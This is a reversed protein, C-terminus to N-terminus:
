DKKDQITNISLILNYLHYGLAAFAVLALMEYAPRCTERGKFGIFILLPAILLAHILNVWLYSSGSRIRLFAKYAHYFLLFFGLVLIATYLWSPTNARSLAIFLFLPVVAFLHFLSLLIHSDM